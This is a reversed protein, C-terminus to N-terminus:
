SHKLFREKTILHSIETEWFICRVDQLRDLLTSNTLIQTWDASLVSLYRLHTQIVQMSTARYPVCKYIPKLKSFYRADTHLEMSQITDNVTSNSYLKRSTGLVATYLNQRSRFPVQRPVCMCMDSQLFLRPAINRWAGLNFDGSEPLAAEPLLASLLVPVLCRRRDYLFM